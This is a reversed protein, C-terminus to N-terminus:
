KYVEIRLRRGTIPNPAFAPQLHSNNWVLILRTCPCARVLLDIGERTLWETRASIVEVDILNISSTEFHTFVTEDTLSSGLCRLDLQKGRQYDLPYWPLGRIVSRVKEEFCWGPACLWVGALAAAAAAALIPLVLLGENWTWISCATLLMPSGMTLVPKRDAARLLLACIRRAQSPEELYLELLLVAALLFMLATILDTAGFSSIFNM